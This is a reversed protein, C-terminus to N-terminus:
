NPSPVLEIRVSFNFLGLADDRVLAEQEVKHVSEQILELNQLTEIFETDIKTVAASTGKVTSRISIRKGPASSRNDLKITHTDYSISQILMEDPKIETFKLLLESPKIPVNTFDALETIEKTLKGFEGSSRLNKNNTGTNESIKTELDQIDRGVAM